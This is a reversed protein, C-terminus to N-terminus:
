SAAVSFQMAKNVDGSGYYDTINFPRIYRFLNLLLQVSIIKFSKTLQEIEFDNELVQGRHFLRNRFGMVKKIIESVKLSYGNLVSGPKRLIM